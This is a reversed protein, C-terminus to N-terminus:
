PLSKFLPLRTTNTVARYVHVDAESFSDRFAGASVEIRRGEYLVDVALVDPSLDNFEAVVTGTALNSAFLFTGGQEKQLVQISDYVYSFTKPSQTPGSIVDVTVTQPVDPSLVVPGLENLEHAIGQLGEWLDTLRAGREYSFWDLGKAGAILATYADCRAAHPTPYGGSGGFDSSDFFQPVGIVVRSPCAKRAADIATKMSARPYGHYEPYSGIMVIDVVDCWDELGEITGFYTTAPRHRPDYQHVIGYLRAIAAHDTPEEPLYWWALNDYASLTTVWEIWFEDGAYLYQDPMNQRVKLGAVQAAELYAKAGALSQRSDYQHVMNFGGAKVKGFDDESVAYLGLPVFSPSYSFVVPLFLKVSLSAALSPPAERQVWDHGKENSRVVSPLGPTGAPLLTRTEAYAPALTSLSGAFVVTFVLTVLLVIYQKM